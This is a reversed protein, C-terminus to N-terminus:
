ALWPYNVTHNCRHDDDHLLSAKSSRYRKKYGWKHREQEFAYLRVRFYPEGSEGADWIRERPFHGWLHQEKSLARNWLRAMNRRLKTRTQISYILNNTPMYWRFSLLDSSWLCLNWNSLCRRSLQKHRKDFAPCKVEWLKAVSIHKRTLSHSM